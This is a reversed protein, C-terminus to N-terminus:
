LFKNANSAALFAANWRLVEWHEKSMLPADPHSTIGQMQPRLEDMMENFLRQAYRKWRTWTKKPVGHPNAVPRGPSRVTITRVAHRIAFDELKSIAERQRRMSGVEGSPAEFHYRGGARKIKGLTSAGSAGGGYTVTKWGQKDAEGVYVLKRAM